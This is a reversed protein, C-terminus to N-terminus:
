DHVALMCQSVTMGVYVEVNTVLKQVLRLMTMKFVLWGSDISKCMSICALDCSSLVPQQLLVMSVHMVSPQLATLDAM